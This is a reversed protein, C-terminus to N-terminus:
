RLIYEEVYDFDEIKPMAKIEWWESGDYENRELIWDIGVLKLNQNIEQLGYGNDYDIKKAKDLFNEISTRENLSVVVFLVDEKSKGYFELSEITEEYLNVWM